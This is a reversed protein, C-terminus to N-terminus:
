DRSDGTLVATVEGLEKELLSVLDMSQDASGALEVCLTDVVKVHIRMVRLRPEEKV